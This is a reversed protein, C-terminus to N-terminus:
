APGSGVPAGWGSGSFGVALLATFVPVSSILLSAAGSEVTVEGYSLGVHYVTFGTFGGFLVAPLDGLAPLPMRSAVAYVGLLVSAILFRLLALHGPSYGELGARIGAFASAWILVALGVALTVRLDRASKM